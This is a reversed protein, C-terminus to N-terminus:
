NHSTPRTAMSSQKLSNLKKCINSTEAAVLSTMIQAGFNTYCLEFSVLLCVSREQLQRVDQIKIM